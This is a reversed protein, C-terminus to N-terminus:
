DMFICTQFCYFLLLICSEYRYLAGDKSFSLATVSYYICRALNDTRDHCQYLETCSRTERCGDTNVILLYDHNVDRSVLNHYLFRHSDGALPVHVWAPPRPPTIAHCAGGGARWCPQAACYICLCCIFCLCRVYYICKM